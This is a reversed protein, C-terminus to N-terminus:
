FLAPSIFLFRAFLLTIIQMLLTGLRGRWGVEIPCNAPARTDDANRQQPQQRYRSAFQCSTRTVQQM